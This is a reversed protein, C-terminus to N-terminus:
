AAVCTVEAEFRVRDGNGENVLDIPRRLGLNRNRSNLWVAVGEPTFHEELMAIIDAFVSIFRSDIPTFTM